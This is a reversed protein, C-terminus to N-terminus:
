ALLVDFLVRVQVMQKRTGHPLHGLDVKGGIRVGDVSTAAPTLPYGQKAEEGAGFLRLKLLRSTLLIPPESGDHGSGSFPCFAPLCPVLGEAPAAGGPRVGAGVEVRLGNRAGPSLLLLLTICSDQM